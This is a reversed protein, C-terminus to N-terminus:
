AKRGGRLHKPWIGGRGAAIIGNPDVADKLQESFRRLAHDNYSYSDAVLDAFAPPSRYEAWGNEAAVEVVRKFAAMSKANIEKNSRSVPMGVIMVFARYIWTAPTQFIGGVNLGFEQYV